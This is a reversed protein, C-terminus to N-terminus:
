NTHCYHTDKCVNEHYPTINWIIMVFRFGVQFRIAFIHPFHFCIHYGVIAFSVYNFIGDYLRCFDYQPRYFYQLNYGHISIPMTTNNDSAFTECFCCSFYWVLKHNRYWKDSFTFRCIVGSFKPLFCIKLGNFFLIRQCEDDNFYM